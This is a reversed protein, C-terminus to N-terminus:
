KFPCPPALFDDGFCGDSIMANYYETTGCAKEINKKFSSFVAEANRPCGGSKNGAAKAATHAQRYAEMCVQCRSEIDEKASSLQPICSSFAVAIIFAQISYSILNKM